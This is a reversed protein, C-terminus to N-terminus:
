FGLFIQNKISFSWCKPYKFVLATDFDPKYKYLKLTKKFPILKSIVAKGVKSLDTM